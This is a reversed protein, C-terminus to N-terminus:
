LYCRVSNAYLMSEHTSYFNMGTEFLEDRYDPLIFDPARDGAKLINDMIGSSRLEETARHM